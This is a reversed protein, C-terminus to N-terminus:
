RLFSSSGDVGLENLGGGFIRGNLFMEVSLKSLMGDGSAEETTELSRGSRTGTEGGASPMCVGRCMRNSPNGKILPLVSGGRTGELSWISSIRRSKSPTVSTEKFAEKKITRQRESGGFGQGSVM